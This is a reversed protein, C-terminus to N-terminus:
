LQGSSAAEGGNRPENMCENFMRVLMLQIPSQTRKLTNREM